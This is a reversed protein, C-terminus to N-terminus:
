QYLEEENDDILYEVAKTDEYETWLDEMGSFHEDTNDLEELNDLVQQPCGSRNAYDLLEEKNSPWPADELAIALEPTWFM